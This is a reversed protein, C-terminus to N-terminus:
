KKKFLYFDAFSGEKTEENYPYKNKIHKELKWGRQNKEVWTTFKRHRVHEAQGEEQEDKNSAYIIVYKNSASFLDRMYKEFVRDEVLHYIVDLSM